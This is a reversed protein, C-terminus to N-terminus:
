GIPEIDQVKPRSRIFSPRAEMRDSFDGLNPYLRRWDNGPIRLTLYGLCCGAAVDALTMAGGVFWVSDGLMSALAAAGSTITDNQRAIWDASQLDAKRNKELVKLVVADCIGDALAEIQRVQVRVAPDTPILRPAADLTDLYEVIVGSDYISRGDDLVLIPVQGLPNLAPAVTGTNWPVDVLEEFDIRKERLAVRVKRSHPNPRAIVLKM